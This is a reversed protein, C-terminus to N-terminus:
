KLCIYIGSGSVGNDAVSEDCGYVGDLVGTGLRQLSIDTTIILSEPLVVSVCMGPIGLDGRMERLISLSHLLTLDRM